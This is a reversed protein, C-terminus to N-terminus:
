RLVEHEGQSGIINEMDRTCGDMAFGMAQGVKIMEDLVVLISGGEKSLNGKACDKPSLNINFNVVGEFIHSNCGESKSQSRVFDADQLHQDELGQFNKPPTFGPPYPVSTETGSKGVDKDRKNLLEYINFPDTSGEKAISSQGVDKACENEDENDGFFTDSVAESDSEVEMVNEAD